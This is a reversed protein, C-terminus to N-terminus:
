QILFIFSKELFFSFLVFPKHDYELFLEVSLPPYKLGCHQLHENWWLWEQSFYFYHTLLYKLTSKKHWQLTFNSDKNSEMRFDKSSCFIGHIELSDAWVNIRGLLASIHKCDSAKRAKRTSSHKFCFPPLYLLILWSMELKM